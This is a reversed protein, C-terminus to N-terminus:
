KAKLKDNYFQNYGLKYCVLIMHLVWIFHLSLYESRYFSTIALHITLLLGAEIYKNYMYLRLGRKFLIGFFCLVFVLGILGAEWFIDLYFINSIRFLYDENSLGFDTLVSLSAIGHGFLLEMTSSNAILEILSSIFQSRASSGSSERELKVRIFEFLVDGFAILFSLFIFTLVVFLIDRAKFVRTSISRALSLFGFALFILILNGIAGGSFSLLVAFVGLTFALYKKLNGKIFLATLIIFEILIPALFNPEEALSTLRKPVISRISPPVSHMWDRTDVFFEIGFMNGIFQWYAFFVFVCCTFFGIKLCMKLRRDDVSNLWINLLIIVFVTIILTFFRGIIISNLYEGLLYERNIIISFISVLFAGLYFLSSYLSERCFSVHRIFPLIFLLVSASFAFTGVVFFISWKTTSFPGIFFFVMM